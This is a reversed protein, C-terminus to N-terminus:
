HNMEGLEYLTVALAVAAATEARLTRPGLTVPRIGAAEADRLEDPTFGGEPGIFVCIGGTPRVSKLATKLSTQCGLAAIIASQGRQLPIALAAPFTVPEELSPIVGRGSQEAAEQIIRQWRELRAHGPAESISRAARVPVFAAAGIETCKQLAWEFKDPKNLLSLYLTVQHQPEARCQAREEVRGSVDDKSVSLLTVRYEWGKGDLLCIEDGARMRLVRTIQHAAEDRIHVKDTILSEAPVFFRHM